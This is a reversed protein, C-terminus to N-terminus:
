RRTACWKRLRPVDCVDPPVREDYFAHVVDDEALFGRRRLKAEMDKHKIDQFLYRCELDDGKKRAEVAQDFLNPMEQRKLHDRMEAISANQAISERM